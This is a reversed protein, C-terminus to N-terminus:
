YTLVYMAIHNSVEVTYFDIQNGFELEVKTICSALLSFTMVVIRRMM